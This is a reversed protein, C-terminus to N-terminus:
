LFLYFLYIAGTGVIASFLNSAMSRILCDRKDCSMLRYYIMGEAVVVLIEGVFLALYYAARREGILVLVLNLIPNTVMNCLLNYKVWRLSKTMIWIVPAEFLSSILVFLLFFLAPYVIDYGFNM